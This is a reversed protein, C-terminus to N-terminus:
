IHIYKLVKRGFITKMSGRLQAKIKATEGRIVERLEEKRM